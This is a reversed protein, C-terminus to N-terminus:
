PKASIGSPTTKKIATPSSAASPKSASTMPGAASGTDYAAIIDRTIDIGTSAYLVPSTQASVDIVLEYGKDSAYKSIVAMIKGGLDNMLRQNEEQLDNNADDTDRNLAKTAVDIDRALKQQAEQSMTNQGKRLADENKAIEARKADLKAKVPNFKAQIDALAKQGDKTQFIAQQIAITAIKSSSQAQAHLASMAAVALLTTITRKV